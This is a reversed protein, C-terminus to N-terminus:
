GVTSWNRDMEKEGWWTQQHCLESVLHSTKWLLQVQSELQLHTAPYSVAPYCLVEPDQAKGEHLKVLQRRVQGMMLTM